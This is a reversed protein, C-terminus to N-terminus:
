MYSTMYFPRMDAYILLYIASGSLPRSTSTVRRIQHHYGFLYKLGVGGKLLTRSNRFIIDTCTDGSPPLSFWDANTSQATAYFWRLWAPSMHLLNAQISWVLPFCATKNAAGGGLQCRHVRDKMWESRSSQIYQVNDGDGVVMALYIKSANYTLPPDPLQQLPTSIAPESSFYALNTVGEIYSTM